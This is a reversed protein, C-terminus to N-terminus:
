SRPAALAARRRIDRHADVACRADVAQGLHVIGRVAAMAIREGVARVAPGAVGDDDAHRVVPRCRRHDPEGHAGGALGLVVVRRVASEVRLRVGAGPAPRAQRPAIRRTTRERFSIVGEGRRHAPELGAGDHRDLADTAEVQGDVGGVRGGDGLQPTALGAVVFREGDHDRVGGRGGCHAHEPALRDGHEGGLAPRDHQCRLSRAVDDGVGHRGPQGLEAQHERVAREVVKEKSAHATREHHRAAVQAVIRDSVLVTVGDGPQPRHDVAKQGM